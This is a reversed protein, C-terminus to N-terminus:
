CSPSRTPRTSTMPQRGSIPESSALDPNASYDAIERFRLLNLMSVPGTIGRDFLQRGNEDTPEIYMRDSYTRM